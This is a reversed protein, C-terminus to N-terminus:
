IIVPNGAEIHTMIEARLKALYADAETVSKITAHQPIVTVFQAEPVRLKALAERVKQVRGSPALIKDGWGTLSTVNLTTLLEEDTGITLQPVPGLSHQQLLRQQEAETSNKWEPSAVLGQLERGQAEILHQRAEQLAARLAASVKQLLPSVPDPNHLLTRGSIIAHIQPEIEAAIPLGSAHTFLSQLMRWQPRRREIETCAQTWAKFSDLLDARHEYVGVFQANGSLIQLEKITDAAPCAPLPADGGARTALEVLHQLVRPIAEAEENPKIPFGLNAVLSRVAIRQATTITIGESYFDTLGIQQVIVQKLSLAQGNKVPRVFGGAVLCLLAGNVADRSWGYGVGEFHKQLESGKKSAGGIFTCVEQCVPHKDIEGRYGVVELPDTNGQLSRKVVTDWSAHDALTFKPFLRVLADEVAKKVSDQLNGLIVENGGGQYIRANNVIGTILADRDRQYVERKTEMSHKADQGEHTTPAPRSTITENAAAYSALADKLADAKQRPLFVFVLPSETGAAQADERVTKATVSWEDRIWVPVAEKNTPPADLTFYLELQRPTKSVGQTLKISKLAKSITNRFETARDDAIRTDTALIRARRQQYGQEWETGERTQLRYEDGVQMLRGDRVLNELLPPICQRLKANANVDTVDEVLLDALTAVDACLGTPEAGTTSLKSLLFITACLRSRLKGDDTGDDMREIATAVDRLLVSSQLMDTKLQNYIVDGTVVTGLPADAIEKIADHVIRLQTRLQGALGMSDVARLVSEWFRSRAPLLPYDPILRDVDASRPGINTGVLQRNIEGSAADLATKLAPIQAPQKRLVVERVVREVDTDTLPVRVTFRGQLKQLQPTAQIAAQGTAVFLLRNGFRASCAEVINQVHLTRDSDDGIFQQLEDFILLTCPLKGPTTSQLELVDRMTGLLEDDSIDEKNPFQEKILGRAEATTQAFDSIINLLAQFLVTSVYMNNLQKAFDSGLRAVEAKVDKYYGNQMLWIVFRAPAYQEPLGASRFLISLLALRVSKSTGAGLTGAASWLGGERRGITTLEVLHDAIDNPLKALGRARVGDPFVTDRWLYELVRVFHSKGSGYFGSVWIAPQKTEHINTLYATLIRQLGRQYEGECVFHSLEYRLVDWEEPTSPNIVQAVGNNPITYTTPDELFIDRNKLM